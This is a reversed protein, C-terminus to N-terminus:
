GAPLLEWPTAPRCFTPMANALRLNPALGMAARLGRFFGGHGIILPLGPMELIGNVAAAARVVLESFTEAGEPTHAGVIWDTFWPALMPQGERIGFAVEQLEPVIEVPLGLAAGVIEATVRARALPSTVIRTIARDRLQEAAARAQALGHPNLPIDTRGQALSDINWDTQGHRLFWFPRPTLPASM